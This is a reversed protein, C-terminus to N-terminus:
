GQRALLVSSVLVSITTVKVGESQLWSHRGLIKGQRSKFSSLQGAGVYDEVLLFIEYCHPYHQYGLRNSGKLQIRTGEAMLEDYYIM